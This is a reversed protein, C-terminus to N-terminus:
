LGFIASHRHLADCFLQAHIILERATQLGCYFFCIGHVKRAGTMCPDDFPVVETGKATYIPTNNFMFDTSYAGPIIHYTLISKLEPLRFLTSKPLKNAGGLTALLEDFAENSPALIQLLFLICASTLFGTPSPTCPTIHM